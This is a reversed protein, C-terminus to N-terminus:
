TPIKRLPLVLRSHKARAELFEGEHFAGRRISYRELLEGAGRAMEKCIDDTKSLSIVWWWDTGMLIPINFMVVGHKLDSKTSWFHGSYHRQLWQAMTRAIALDKEKFPDHEVGGNDNAPAEHREVMIMDHQRPGDKLLVTQGVIEPDHPM